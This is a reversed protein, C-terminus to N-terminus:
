RIEMTEAKAKLKRMKTHRSMLRARNENTELNELRDKKEEEYVPRWDEYIRKLEQVYLDHYRDVEEQTPNEVLPCDIPNGVVSRIPTRFPFIGVNLGFVRHLLGGSLARGVVLPLAFGMIKQLKDQIKKATGTLQISGFLDTEGFSYVPVLSAGNKMAYKVFGKRQGLILVNTGVGSELSEKAGGPVLAISKGRQLNNCISEASVDQVGLALLFDRWFPIKFQIQMTLLRVDIGPFLADFGTANTSFNLLAGISLVGHPHYGFVYRKEPDLKRTRTLKVPFYMAAHRYIRRRRMSPCFRDYRRPCFFMTLLSKGIVTFLGLATKVTDVFINERKKIGLDAFISDQKSWMSSGLSSLMATKTVPTKKSYNESDNDTAAAAGPTTSGTRETIIQLREAVTSSTVKEDPRTAGGGAATQRLTLAPTTSVPTSAATSMSVTSLSPDMSTKTCSTKNTEEYSSSRECTSGPSMKATTADEFEDVVSDSENDNGNPQEVGENQEGTRGGSGSSQPSRAIVTYEDRDEPDVDDDVDDDPSNSTRSSLKEDDAHLVLEQMKEEKSTEYKGKSAGSDFLLYWTVYAIYLMRVPSVVTSGYESGFLREDAYLLCWVNFSFAMNFVALIFVLISRMQMRELSDWQGVRGPWLLVAFYGQVIVTCIKGVIGFLGSFIDYNAVASLLLFFYLIRKKVTTHSEKRRFTACFTRIEAGANRDPDAASNTSSGRPPATEAASERIASFRKASSRYKQPLYQLDEEISFQRGFALPSLDGSM